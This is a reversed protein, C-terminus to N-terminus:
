KGKIFQISKTVQNIHSVTELLPELEKRMAENKCLCEEKNKGSFIMENICNNLVTAINGRRM